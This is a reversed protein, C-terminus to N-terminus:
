DDDSHTKSGATSQTTATSLLIPYNVAALTGDSCTNMQQGADYTFPTGPAPPRPTTYALAFPEVVDETTAHNEPENQALGGWM